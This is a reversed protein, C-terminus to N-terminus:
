AMGNQDIPGRAQQVPDAARDFGLMRDLVSELYGVREATLRVRALKDMLDARVPDDPAPRPGEGTVDYGLAALMDAQPIGLAAELDRLVNPPPTEKFAETELRSVFSAPRKMLAALEFAMMGRDERRAKILEGFRTGMTVLEVM